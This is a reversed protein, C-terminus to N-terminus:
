GFLARRAEAPKPFATLTQSTLVAAHRCVNRKVLQKQSSSRAKVTPVGSGFLGTAEPPGVFFFSRFLLYYYSVMSMEGPIADALHLELNGLNFCRGKGLGSLWM